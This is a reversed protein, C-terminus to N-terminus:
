FVYLDVSVTGSAELILTKSPASNSDQLDWVDANSRKRVILYGQLPRNLKHAVSNSGTALLVNKLLIGDLIPSDALSELAAAVYLQVKNLEESETEIAKFSKARM